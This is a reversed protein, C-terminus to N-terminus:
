KKSAPDASAGEPKDAASPTSTPGGSSEKVQRRERLGLKVSEELAEKSGDEMFAIMKLPDNDFRKRTASPLKAFTENAERTMNFAHALDKVGTSDLFVGEKASLQPAIGKKMRAVITNIDCDKAHSPDTKSPVDKLSKRVRISGDARKAVTRKGKPNPIIRSRDHM